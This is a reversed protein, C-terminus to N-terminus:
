ICSWFELSLYVVPPFPHIKEKLKSKIERLVGKLSGFLSFTIGVHINMRDSKEEM